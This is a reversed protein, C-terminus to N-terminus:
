QCGPRLPNWHGKYCCKEQMERPAERCNLASYPMPTSGALKFTGILLIVLSNYLGIAWM